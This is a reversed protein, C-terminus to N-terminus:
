GSRVTRVVRGLYEPDIGMTVGELRGKCFEFQRATFSGDTGGPPNFLHVEDPVVGNLTRYKEESVIVDSVEVEEESFPIGQIEGKMRGAISIVDVGKFQFPKRHKVVRVKVM